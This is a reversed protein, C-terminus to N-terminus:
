EEFIEKIFLLLDKEPLQNISEIVPSLSKIKDLGPYNNYKRELKEHKIQLKKLRKQTENLENEVLSIEKELNLIEENKDRYSSIIERVREKLNENLPTVKVLKNQNDLYDILLDEDITFIDGKEGSKFWKSFIGVEVLKMKLSEWVKEDCDNQKILSLIAEENVRNEGNKLNAIDKDINILSQFLHNEKNTLILQQKTMDKTKKTKIIQFKGKKKTILGKKKNYFISQNISDNSREPLKKRLDQKNFFGNEDSIEVIVEFLSKKKM